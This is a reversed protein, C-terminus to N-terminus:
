HVNTETGPHTDRTELDAAKCAVIRLDLASIRLPAELIQNWFKVHSEDRNPQGAQQAKATAPM